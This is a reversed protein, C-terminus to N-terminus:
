NISISILLQLSHVYLNLVVKSTYNLFLHKFFFYVNILFNFFIIFYQLSDSCKFFYDGVHGLTPSEYFNTYVHCELLWFTSYRVQMRLCNHVGLKTLPM